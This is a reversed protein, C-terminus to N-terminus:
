WVWYYYRTKKPADELNKKELLRRAKRTAKKYFRKASASIYRYRGIQHTKGYSM